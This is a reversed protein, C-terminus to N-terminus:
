RSDGWQLELSQLHDIKRGAKKQAQHRDVRSARAVPSREILVHLKTKQFFFTRPLPAKNPLLNPAHQMASDGTSAWLVKEKIGKM